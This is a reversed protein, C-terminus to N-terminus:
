PAAAVVVVADPLSTLAAGPFFTMLPLSSSVLRVNTPDAM